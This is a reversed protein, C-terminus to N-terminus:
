TTNYIIDDISIFFVAVGNDLDLASEVFCANNTLERNDANAFLNLKLALENNVWFIAPLISILSGVVVSQMILYRDDPRM